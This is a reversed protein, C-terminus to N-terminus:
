FYPNAYIIKKINEYIKNSVKFSDRWSSRQSLTMKFYHYLIITYKFYNQALERELNTTDVRLPSIRQM